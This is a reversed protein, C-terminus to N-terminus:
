KSNVVIECDDEFKTGDNLIVTLTLKVTGVSKATVICENNENKSISVISEDASTWNIDKISKGSSKLVDSNVSYTYKKSVTKDNELIMKNDESGVIKVGTVKVPIEITKILNGNLFVKCIANAVGFNMAKVEARFGSGDVSIVEDNSSSWEVRNGKEDNIEFNNGVTLNLVESKELSSFELDNKNMQPDYVNVIVTKTARGNAEVVTLNTKGANSGTITIKNTNNDVSASIGKGDQVDSLLTLEGARGLKEITLEKVEDKLLNIEEIETENDLIKLGTLYIKMTTEQNGVSTSEYNTATVNTSFETPVADKVKTTIKGDKLSMFDEANEGSIASFSLSQAAGNNNQGSKLTIFDELNVTAGNTPIFVNSALIATVPHNITYNTDTYDIPLSHYTKGDITVGELYYITHSQENIIYTGDYNELTVDLLDLNIKYYSAANNYFDNPNVLDAKSAFTSGKVVVEKMSDQVAGNVTLTASLESVPLRNHELYYVAVADNLARIDNYLKNLKRIQVNSVTNFTLTSMIILLILVTMVATTLSIGKNDRLM